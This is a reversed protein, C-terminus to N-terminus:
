PIGDLGPAKGNHSLRLAEEIDEITLDKDMDNFEPESLRVNCKELTIEIAMMRAYEDPTDKHQTSQSLTIWLWRQWRNRDRKTDRHVLALSYKMKWSSSMFRIKLTIDEPPTHGPHPEDLSSSM